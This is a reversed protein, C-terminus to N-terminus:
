RELKKVVCAPNGAVVSNRPVDRIVVPGFGVVSNDGIKVGKLVSAAGGIWVNRGTRIPKSEAKAEVSWRDPYISHFDTDLIMADGLIADDGVDDGVDDGITIM